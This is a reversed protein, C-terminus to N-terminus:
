LKAATAKSDVEAYMEDILPRFLKAAENRKLKFTPTLLGNDASFQEPVVRVAKVFEFGRLKAAGGIRDLEKLLLARFAESSALQVILPHPPEGPLASPPAPTGPPLIGAAVAAPVAQESDPVVIGVLENRLSDGHVFVQAVLPSQLYVNEIKEPAVYEGQSLKFINKKRDIIYLRGKEDIYGIDGTKLWGDDTLAEKTKAPDKFYGAFINTGRQCIEGRPFPKDTALYNMDPVSVLKIENCPTICGVNSKSYDYPWAVTAVASSETSGYGEQMQCCFAVRLFKKTFDSLPASGSLIVRIRGGLAAKVKNFVLADWFGHTVLGTADLHDMKAQLATRFIAARLATGGTAKAMVQDVVRNLLRPVSAFVTPRLTAIDEILLKVDGRSFGVACGSGLASSMCLREYIHALPLYSLYYDGVVPLTGMELLGRLGGTINGHTLMAGKPMGTTGSTYSFCAIDKSTPLRFPVRNKSGLAEVELFSLLTVGKEAAWKKLVGFPTLAVVAPDAHAPPGDMSIIVKLQPCKPALHILNPVKDISAIALPVEAHNIIYEATEPGLTDYLSVTIFSFLHAGLDAIMWEPRNVAYIALRFKEGAKLIDDNLKNIGCGFNIRRESVQRYSQWVYDKSTVAGTVPDRVTPRHGFCPSNPAQKLGAQFGDYLTKIEPFDSVLGDTLVSRYIGTESGDAPRTNPLEVAYTPLKVLQEPMLVSVGYATPRRPLAKGHNSSASM